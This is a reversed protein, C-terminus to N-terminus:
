WAETDQAILLAEAAEKVSPRWIQSTITITVVNRLHELAQVVATLWEVETTYGHRVIWVEHGEPKSTTM